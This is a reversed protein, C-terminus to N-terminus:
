KKELIGKLYGSQEALLMNGQEQAAAIRNLTEQLRPLHNTMVKDLNTDCNARRKRDAELEGVTSDWAWKVAHKVIAHVTPVSV